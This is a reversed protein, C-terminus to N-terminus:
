SFVTLDVVFFATYCCFVLKLYFVKKDVKKKFMETDVAITRSLCNYSLNRETGETKTRELMLDSEQDQILKKLKVVEKSNATTLIEIASSSSAKQEEELFMRQEEFDM